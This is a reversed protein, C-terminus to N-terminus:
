ATVWNTVDSVSCTRELAAVLSSHDRRAAWQKAQQEVVEQLQGLHELDSLRVFGGNASGSSGTGISAPDKKRYADSGHGSTRSAARRDAGRQPPPPPTGPRGAGSGDRERERRGPGDDQGRAGQHGSGGHRGRGRGGGYSHDSSPGPDAGSRVAAGVM